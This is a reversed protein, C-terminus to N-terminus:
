VEARWSFCRSGAASISVTFQTTTLTNVAYAWTISGSPTIVISTPVVGLNHTVTASGDTTVDWGSKRTLKQSSNEYWSKVLAFESSAAYKWLASSSGVYNDDLVATLDSESDYFKNIAISSAVYLDHDFTDLVKNASLYAGHYKTGSDLLHHQAAQANSSITDYGLVTLTQAANSSVKVTSTFPSLGTSATLEQFASAEVGGAGVVQDQVFKVNVASSPHTEDPYGLGSIEYAVFPITAM